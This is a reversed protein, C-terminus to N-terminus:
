GSTEVKMSKREQLVDAVTTRGAQVRAAKLAALVQNVSLRALDPNADLYAHVSAKVTSGQGNPPQGSRASLQRVPSASVNGKGLYGRVEGY